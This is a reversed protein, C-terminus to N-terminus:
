FTEDCSRYTKYAGIADSEVVAIEVEPRVRRLAAALIPVWEPDTTVGNEWGVIDCLNPKILVRAPLALRFIGPNLSLADQLPRGSLAGSASVAVVEARRATGRPDTPTQMM